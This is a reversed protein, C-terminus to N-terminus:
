QELELLTVIARLKNMEKEVDRYSAEELRKVTEAIEKKKESYAEDGLTREAASALIKAQSVMKTKMSTGNTQELLRDINVRIKQASKSDLARELRSLSEELSSKEKETIKGALGEIAKKSECIVNKARCRIEIIEKRKEDSDDFKTAEIIM